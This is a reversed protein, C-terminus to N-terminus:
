NGAFPWGQSSRGSQEESGRLDSGSQNQQGGGRAYPSSGQAYPNQGYPSSYGPSASDEDHTPIAETSDTARGRDGQEDAPVDRLAQSHGLLTADADAPNQSFPTEDGHDPERATVAQTREGEDSGPPGSFDTRARDGSEAATAAAASLSAAGEGRAVSGEDEDDEDDEEDEDYAGLELEDSFIVATGYAVIEDANSDFRLGVVADADAAKAMDAMRSVADQRAKTLSAPDKAQPRLAVGIVEGLTRDIFSEPDDGLTHVPVAHRAITLPASSALSEPAAPPQAAQWSEPGGASPASQPRQGQQPQGYPNHQGPQGRQPQGYPNQQPRGYPNQQPQGYPNPQQPQGYPNPQQPQGYPNPQGQQPQQGYPNPQQGGYPRQGYPQQPQGGYPNQGYPNQGYSM